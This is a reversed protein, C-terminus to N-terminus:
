DGKGRQKSGEPSSHGQHQQIVITECDHCRQHGCNACHGDTYPSLPGYRCVDCYWVNVHIPGRKSSSKSSSSAM